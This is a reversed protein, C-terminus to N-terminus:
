TLIGTTIVALVTGTWLVVMWKLLDNFKDSFDARFAAFQEQTVFGTRMADMETRLAHM